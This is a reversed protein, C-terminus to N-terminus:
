VNLVFKIKRFVGFKYMSFSITVITKDMYVKFSPCECATISESSVFELSFMDRIGFFKYFRFM